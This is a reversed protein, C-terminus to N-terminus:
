EKVKITLTSGCECNFYYLDEFELTINALHTNIKGCCGCTHKFKLTDLIQKSVQTGKNSMYVNHRLAYLYDIHILM